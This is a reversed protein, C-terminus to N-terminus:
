HASPRKKTLLSGSRLERRDEKPLHEREAFEPDWGQTWTERIENARVVRVFGGDNWSCVYGGDEWDRWPLMGDWSPHPPFSGQGVKRWDIVDYRVGNWSYWILQDLQPRGDEYYLHNVEVLDVSERVDERVPVISLLLLALTM